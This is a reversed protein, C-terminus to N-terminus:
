GGIKALAAEYRKIADTRPLNNYMRVAVLKQEETLKIKDGQKPRPPTDGSLVAAPQKRKPPAMLRDVESLIEGIDAGAFDPDNLVGNTIEICRANKPHNEQAWPRLPNGESDKESAWRVVAQQREQTFWGPDEQKKEPKKEPEPRSRLTAIQDDIEVVAENDGNELASIKKAKLEALRSDTEKKAQSSEMAELREILKRNDEAMQRMAAENMKMSGYVRNFRREIMERDATQFDVREWEQDKPLDAPRPKEETQPAEPTEVAENTEDTM